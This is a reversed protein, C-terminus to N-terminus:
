KKYKQKKPRKECIYNSPITIGEEMDAPDNVIEVDSDDNVNSIVPRVNNTNTNSRNNTLDIMDNGEKATTGSPVHDAGSDDASNGESARCLDGFTMMCTTEMVVISNMVLDRRYVQFMQMCILLGEGQNLTKHNGKTMLKATLQM